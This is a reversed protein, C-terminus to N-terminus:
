PSNPHSDQGSTTRGDTVASECQSARARRVDYKLPNRDTASSWYQDAAPLTARLIRRVWLPLSPHLRYYIWQGDRRETVIGLSRLTALHRSIKPQTVGIADTLQRVCLEGETMLLAVCRLRTQDALARSLDVPDANM